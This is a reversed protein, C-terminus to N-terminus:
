NRKAAKRGRGNQSRAAEIAKPTRRKTRKGKGLAEPDEAVGTVMQTVAEGDDTGRPLVEAHADVRAEVDIHVNLGSPEPGPEKPEPGRKRKSVRVVTAPARTGKGKGGNNTESGEAAQVGPLTDVEGSEASAVPQIARLRAM